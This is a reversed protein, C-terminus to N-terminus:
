GLLRFSGKCLELLGGTQAGVVWSQAQELM